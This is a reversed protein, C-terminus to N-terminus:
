LIIEMCIEDCNPFKPCNICEGWIKQPMNNKDVIIFGQKKFFDVQYTLTFVRPISLERAEELFFEVLGRGIGRYSYEEKVALSRIEALDNWLIHLGGVGAIVGDIEVVAFDRIHEFINSRSKSLMLGTAAYHNVLALIDEVDSLKAKRLIM